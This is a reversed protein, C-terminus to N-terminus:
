PISALPIIRDALDAATYTKSLDIPLLCGHNHDCALIILNEGAKCWGHTQPQHGLVFVDVDFTKALRDLTPQSHRRGWTLLYASGPRECDSVQLEREFIAPDFEDLSRDGPLSHSIWLRNGCRVALPQSFLFQRIALRVDPGSQRFERDLASSMARNMEKGNKMVETSCITATDHNGMVLHVQDPFRLKLRIVDFLLQYSLCGGAEDEPGGHIIEQFILHRDPHDALRAFAVIREFNRRHGHIDGTVILSGTKPLCIM